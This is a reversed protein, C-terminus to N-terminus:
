PKIHAATIPPVRNDDGFLHCNSKARVASPGHYSRCEQLSARMRRYHLDALRLVHPERDKRHLSDVNARLLRKQVISAFSKKIAERRKDYTRDLDALATLTEQIATEMDEPYVPSGPGSGLRVTARNNKSM